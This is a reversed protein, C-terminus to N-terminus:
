NMGWRPVRQDNDGTRCVKTNEIAHRGDRFVTEGDSMGGFPGSSWIETEDMVIINVMDLIDAGEREGAHLNSQTALRATSYLAPDASGTPPTERNWDTTL